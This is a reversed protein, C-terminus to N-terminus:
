KNIWPSQFNLKKLGKQIEPCSMFLKWLLGSRYNEIMAVIPGQDIALYSDAYWNQTENFADKFGYPGWIKDGLDNYFHKLALMSYEPTYPFAALAATPSITGFDNTPSHANYGDYTDSATLGWCNPGYGKFKKPNDLCYAHNILTHNKNQEWYDAYQDKLGRPDLGLFSYQSFFLPGGYDFGLPLTYGYFSKGNKFFNSQAWGNHYVAASVPYREGSAALVYMILCENFGRVAFNMAWGNNPSWHWYLVEQGDRTFWSWEVESWIWGIRNRLEREIHNDGDFYQRACLLGQLLYSTEVLDAGDDKRGFPITKGTEGNMWHPFAGHYSNAKLLFNVMQLLFKAATDRTIWKRDTAAIVSMVGFGTGGTTVVEDGYDFSTNSRERAMHSVPHAFNWFYKFTQHETLDLLASDSLPARKQAMTCFNLLCLGFILTYKM